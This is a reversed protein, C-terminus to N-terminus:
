HNMNNFIQDFSTKSGQVLNSAMGVVCEFEDHEIAKIAAGGVESPKIGRNTTGRAGRDLDTDVIPPIIEFVKVPTDKLQHRLTVSFSHIAAKTACYVPMMAIPIFGLGSSINIIASEKRKMFEPIFWASLHITSVLNIDIEDEKNMLEGIGNKFNIRRQIGANNILINLEPFKCIAWNYLTERDEAKSVDCVATTVQPLKKKAEALKDKRRGCIIVENGVKVLEEALSFGIGM